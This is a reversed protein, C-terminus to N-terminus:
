GYLKRYTSPKVGAAKEFTHTFHKPDNYGVRRCIETVPLNSERLLLKAQEMRVNILYKAFGKGTKQKFICSLHNPSVGIEAAVNAIMLNQQTYQEKIIRKAKQVMDSSADITKERFEIVKEIVLGIEKEAKESSSVKSVYSDIDTINVFVDSSNGGLLEVTKMCIVITQVLFYSCYLLSNLLSQNCSHIYKETFEQIDEIKGYQLFYNLIEERNGEEILDAAKIKPMEHYKELKEEMAILDTMMADYSESKQREEDMKQKLNTFTRVVKMPTVPKVLYEEVGLTIAEKAYTFETYGSIIVIKINSYLSHVIRALELGDMFPMKIDTLLVDPHLKEIKELAEEGNAAEAVIHFGYKEWLIGKQLNERISKEDEVIIM